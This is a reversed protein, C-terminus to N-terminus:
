ETFDVVQCENQDYSMMEQKSITASGYLDFIGVKYNLTWSQASEWYTMYGNSYVIFDIHLTDYVISKLNSGLVDKLAKQEYYAANAKGAGSCDLDFGVLYRYEGGGISERKVTASEAIITTRNIIFNCKERIDSDEYKRDASTDVESYKKSWTIKEDEDEMVELKGKQKYSKEGDSFGRDAFMVAAKLIPELFEDSVHTVYITNTYSSLVTQNANLTPTGPTYYQETRNSTVDITYDLADAFIDSKARVGWSKSLMMKKCALEYLKYATESTGNTELSAYISDANGSHGDALYTPNKGYNGKEIVFKNDIQQNFIAVTMYVMLFLLWLVLLVKFITLLVKGFKKM